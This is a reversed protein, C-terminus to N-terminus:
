PPVQTGGGLFLYTVHNFVKNRRSSCHQVLMKQLEDPAIWKMEDNEHDTGNRLIHTYHEAANFDLQYTFRAYASDLPGVQFIKAKDLVIGTEELTERYINDIPSEVDDEQFLLSDITPMIGTKFYEKTCTEKIEYFANYNRVGKPLGWLHGNRVLLIKNDLSKLIIIAGTHDGRLDRPHEPWIWARNVDASINYRTIPANRIYGDTLNPNPIYHPCNHVVINFYQVNERSIEGLRTHIKVHSVYIPVMEEM